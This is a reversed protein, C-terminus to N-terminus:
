KEVMEKIDAFISPFKEYLQDLLSLALERMQPHAAPATRLFLFHRAERLNM